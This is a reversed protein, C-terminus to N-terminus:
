NYMIEQSDGCLHAEEGGIGEGGRGRTVASSNERDWYKNISWM